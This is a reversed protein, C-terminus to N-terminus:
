PVRKGLNPPPVPGYGPPYTRVPGPGIGAPPTPLGLASSPNYPTPISDPGVNQTGTGIAEDKWHYVVDDRRLADSERVTFTRPPDDLGNEGVEITRFSGRTYKYHFITGSAFQTTTRYHMADIRTMLIARPDWNSVDTTIYVSDTLPTSPPVQVVFTVAVPRGTLPPGHYGNPRVDTNPTQPTEAVAFGKVAAYAATADYGAGAPIPAKSVALEVIQGTAKDFSARAYMRVGPTGAFPRQTAYDVVQVGPALKFADGSTFVAYGREVDLLQGAYTVLVRNPSPAPTPAAAIQARSPALSAAFIGILM